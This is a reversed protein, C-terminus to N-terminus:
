EVRSRLGDKELGLVQRGGDSCESASDTSSRRAASDVLKLDREDSEIAILYM